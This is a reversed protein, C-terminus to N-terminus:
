ADQSERHAPMVRPSEPHIRIPAGDSSRRVILRDITQAALIEPLAAEFGHQGNGVGARHLDGRYREAVVRMLVAGDIAIDLCVPADPFRADQAWGLLRGAEIREVFGRLEGPVPQSAIALGARVALRRRIADLVFGEEVRLACLVADTRELEPYLKAFEAANQFIDRDGLDVFTESLAGNAFIVDHSELEIHFYDVRDATEPQVISAGNLLCEAPVLVHEIFMAHKPSVWLDRVPVGDALAGAKFCIPLVKRNTNAYRGIYSRRGIWKIPRPAGSVTVLRQGIVLEEVAVEGTETLIMTGRCYCPLADKTAVFGYDNPYTQRYWGAVEGQDNIGVLDVETAGPPDITSVAGTGLNEVFGKDDPGPADQYEGIVQGSNNIGTLGTSYAGPVDVTEFTYSSSDYVFGHSSVGDYYSGVVQGENNIGAVTMGGLSNPANITEFLGTAANYIFGHTHNQNDDYEGVIQDANNMGTVLLLSGSGPPDLTETKGTAPDYFFVDSQGAANPDSYMGAIQGADNIATPVVNNLGALDIPTTTGIKLDDVYSVLKVQANDFGVVLAQGSANIGAVDDIHFDPGVGAPITVNVPNGSSDYIYVPNNTSGETSGFVNGANDIGNPIFEPLTESIDYTYDVSSM